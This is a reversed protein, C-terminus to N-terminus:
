STEVKLTLGNVERVKVKTGRKLDEDSIVSWDESSINATGTEGKRLDTTLVGVQGILRRPDMSPKQKALRKRLGYLYISGTVIGAGLLLLLVYTISGIGQFNAPPPTNAPLQSPPTPTQFVFLFGVAFIIVGALASVGHHTKVELFIFVAGIFMLLVAILPAGFLGLGALALLISVAGLVSLVLTPHFLDVLIAAIGVLFLLGSVNPDALVELFVPAFGPTHIPTDPPVGIAALADSTSNDNLIGTIVNLRAAEEATYSVGKTVMLGTATANRGFNSTLAQMYSKFGSIDKTLTTNLEADPIGTIIPTASGIATGPTMYIKSSAESIYAGASFAHTGVPAILTVFTGGSAQYSSIMGIINDMNSGDGGFTNLVLVFHDAGSARADDLSTQIFNQSGADISMNMSTVYFSSSGSARPSLFAALALTLLTLLLIKSVVTRTKEKQSTKSLLLTM